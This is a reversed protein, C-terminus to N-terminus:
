DVPGHQEGRMLEDTEAPEIVYTCRWRGTITPLSQQLVRAEGLSLPGSKRGRKGRHNVQWVIYQQDQQM